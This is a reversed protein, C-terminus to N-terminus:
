APSGVVISGALRLVNQGRIETPGDAHEKARLLPKAPKKCRRSVRLLPM